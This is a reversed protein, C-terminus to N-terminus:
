LIFWTTCDVSDSSIPSQGISNSSCSVQVFVRSDCGSLTSRQSDKSHKAGFHLYFSFLSRYNVSDTGFLFSRWLNGLVLQLFLIFFSLPSTSLQRFLITNFQFYNWFVVNRSLCVDSMAHLWRDQTIRHTLRLQNSFTIFDGGLVDFRCKNISLVLKNCKPCM